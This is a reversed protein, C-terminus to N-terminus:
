MKTIVYSHGIAETVRLIVEREERLHVHAHSHAVGDGLDLAERVVDGIRHRFVPYGRAELVQLEHSGPQCPVAAPRQAQQPKSRWRDLPRALGAVFGAM